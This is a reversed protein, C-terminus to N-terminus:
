ADEFSQYPYLIGSEYTTSCTDCIYSYVFTDDSLDSKTNNNDWVIFPENKICKGGCECELTINYVKVEKKNEIM